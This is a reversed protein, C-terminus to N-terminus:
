IKPALNIRVKEPIPSNGEGFAALIQLNTINFWNESFGTRKSQSEKTVRRKIIGQMWYCSGSAKRPDYLFRIVRGSKAEEPCGKRTGQMFHPIAEDESTQQKERIISRGGKKQSSKQGPQCKIKKRVKQKQVCIM